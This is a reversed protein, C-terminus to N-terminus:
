PALSALRGAPEWCGGCFRGRNKLAAFVSRLEGPKKKATKNKERAKEKRRESFAREREGEGASGISLTVPLSALLRFPRDKAGTEARAANAQGGSSDSATM